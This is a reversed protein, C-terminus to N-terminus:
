WEDPKKIAKGRRNILNSPMQSAELEDSRLHDRTWDALRQLKVSKRSGAGHALAPLILGIKMNSFDERIMELVPALDSDNSVLVQQDVANLSADRYM